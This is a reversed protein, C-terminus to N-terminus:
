ADGRVYVWAAVPAGTAPLVRLAVCLYLSPRGPELEELEDLIPLRRTPDDFVLLDGATTPWGSVASAPPTGAPFDRRIERDLALLHQCDALPDNSGLALVQSAPVELAPYGVPLM